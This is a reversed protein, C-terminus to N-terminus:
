TSSLTVVTQGDQTDTEVNSVAVGSEADEDGVPVLLVEADQDKQSILKGVLERVKM